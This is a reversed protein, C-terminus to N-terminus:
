PNFFLHLYVATTLTTNWPRHSSHSMLLRLPFSVAALFTVPRTGKEEWNISNGYCCISDLHQVMLIWLLLSFRRLTQSNGTQREILLIIGLNWDTVTFVDRVHRWLPTMIWDTQTQIIQILVDDDNVCFNQSASVVPSCCGPMTKIKASWRKITIM